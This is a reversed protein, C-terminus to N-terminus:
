FTPIIYWPTSLLPGFPKPVDVNAPSVEEVQAECCKIDAVSKKISHPLTSTLAGIIHAKTQTCTPIEVNKNFNEYDPILFPSEGNTELYFIGYPKPTTATIDGGMQATAGDFTCKVCDIISPTDCHNATFKETLSELFLHHARDHSCKDLILSSIM